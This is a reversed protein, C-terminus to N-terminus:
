VEKEPTQALSNVIRAAAFLYDSLRNLYILVKGSFREAPTCSQCRLSLAQCVREARRCVTRAVHLAAGAQSGGPLIFGRQPPLRNLHPELRDELNKLAADQLYERGEPRPDALDAAAAFLSRQIDELEKDFPQPLGLSLCFGLHSSLEDLAGYAEVRLDSKPRREGGILSTLGQDGTKTVINM